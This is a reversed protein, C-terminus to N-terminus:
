GEINKEIIRMIGKKKEDKEPFLLAIVIEAM